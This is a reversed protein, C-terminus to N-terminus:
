CTPGVLTPAPSSGNVITWGSLPPTNTNETPGQYLLIPNDPDQNPDEIWWGFLTPDIPTMYRLTLGGGEYAPKSNYTNGYYIYTTSLTPPSATTYFNDFVGLDGGTNFDAFALSGTPPTNGGVNEALVMPEANGLDDYIGWGSMSVIWYIYYNTGTKRYKPKGDFTGDECYKGGYAANTAVYYAPVSGGPAATTTTTTTTTPAATTTTTTTTGGCGNSMTPEPAPEFVATWIEPLTSDDSGNGYYGPAGSGVFENIFWAFEYGEYWVYYSGNTYYPNGNHTGAEVYCGNVNTNGAGSLTFAGAPAATTTTTPSATTTTTTPTATTTTTTAESLSTVTFQDSGGAIATSWTGIITEVTCTGSGGAPYGCSQSAIPPGSPGDVINGPFLLWGSNPGGAFFMFYSKTEHQWAPQSDFTGSITYNDSYDYTGSINYGTLPAATTTTTTTPTATTTTTTTPAVTTTTTTPAATTTTTPAATTTTPASLSVSCIKSYATFNLEYTGYVDNDTRVYPMTHSGLSVPTAPDSSSYFTISAVQDNYNVSTIQISPM